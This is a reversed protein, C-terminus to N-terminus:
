DSCHARRYKKLEAALNSAENYKVEIMLGSSLPGVITDATCLTDKQRSVIGRQDLLEEIRKSVLRIRDRTDKISQNEPTYVESEIHSIADAVSPAYWWNFISATADPRPVITPGLPDLERLDITSVGETTTGSEYGPVCQRNYRMYLEVKCQDVSVSIASHVEWRSIADIIAEALDEEEDSSVSAHERQQDQSMVGLALALSALLVAGATAGLRM